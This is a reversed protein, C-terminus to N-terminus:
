LYEMWWKAEYILWMTIIATIVLMSLVIPNEVLPVIAKGILVAGLLLCIIAISLSLPVIWWIDYVSALPILIFIEELPSILFLGIVFLIIGIKIM